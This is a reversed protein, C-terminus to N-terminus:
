VFHSLKILNKNSEKTLPVVWVDRKWFPCAVVTFGNVPWFVTMVSGGTSRILYFSSLGCKSYEDRSGLFNWTTDWMEYWWTVLSSNTFSLEETNLMNMNVFVIELYWIDHIFAHVNWDIAYASRSLKWPTLSWHYKELSFNPNCGEFHCITKLYFQVVHSIELEQLGRWTWWDAIPQNKYTQMTVCVKVWDSTSFNLNPHTSM